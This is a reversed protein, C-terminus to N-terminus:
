GPGFAGGAIQSLLTYAEGVTGPIAGAAPEAGTFRAMALGMMDRELGNLPRNALAPSLPDTLLASPPVPPPVTVPWSSPSRPTALNYAETLNPATRDRETLYPLGHKECLTRVLAGHHMPNNVVTGAETYASIAIAPVRVGLRDFLFGFEGAPQPNYPAVAVPPAVHDFTGGHEDFTVLLLTNLANSGTTSASAKYATYIQHLLLDGTRVDSAEGVPIHDIVFTPSPPHMDNHNFLMRPEVFAYAPLTGDALDRYFTDMTAFHTKWYLLLSPTHILGTLSIIQTPDFYIKWSVKADELRNFITPVGNTLWKSYPENYLYGSSSSANFFSRNCFTQTPVACHWADYVAFGRALTSIVPLQEPSFGDMIVRYQEFIPKLKTTAVFNNCYDHVFGMMTPVQGPAPANYPASMQPTTLFANGPPDVVGYLQTNVHPHGEGPDPNPNSFDADTGPSVRATVFSNGDDIYSPVPNRYVGGAVGNYTQNRPVQGPPYLYGLVNDLSRNEFMVVVVHDFQALKQPDTLPPSAVEADSLCGGLLAAGTLSASAKVFERRTPSAPLVSQTAEESKSDEPM